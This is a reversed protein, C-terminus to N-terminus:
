NQPEDTLYADALVNNDIVWTAREQPRCTALYLKQGEVYRRNSAATPDPDGDGRGAGRPISVNFDVELFISLDWLDRLEPRHLFIGDFVLVEVDSTSEWVAEIPEEAHVDYIRRVVQREGPEALPELLLRRVADYDYSDLFFGEPSRRGRRYRISSPHHFGDVSARLVGIGRRELVEALEDAFVTKGAGDVGDVGVLLVEDPRRTESIAAALRYLTRSRRDGFPVARDMAESDM